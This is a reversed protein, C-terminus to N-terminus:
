LDNVINIPKIGNIVRLANKAAKMRMEEFADDSYFAVHPNIILRGSLWDEGSRWADVLKNKVPPEFPIVDLGVASLKGSKIAEYILDLNQIIKGRSTNILISNNKMQNIFDKDVLNTTEKTLPTNLSVVDSENLLDNISDHRISGILKDYGSAVYPDYFSTKFGLARAKRLISGGIRGAGVVGLHLESLRRTGVKYNEKWSDGRLDRAIYDYWGINRTFNLIMAIATDSVEDVGYDPTNCVYIGKSKAYELDVSDFGVGYRIIAKLGPISDILKKDIVKEFVLLVETNSDITFSVENDLISNEISDNALFDTIVVRSM